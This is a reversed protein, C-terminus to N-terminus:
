FPKIYLYTFHFNDVLNILLRCKRVHKEVRYQFINSYIANIFIFFRNLFVRISTYNQINTQTLLLTHNHIHIRILLKVWCSLYKTYCHLPILIVIRSHSAEEKATCVLQQWDFIRKKSTNNSWSGRVLGRKKNHISTRRSIM